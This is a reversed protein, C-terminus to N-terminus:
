AYAKCCRAKEGFLQAAATIGDTGYQEKCVCFASLGYTREIYDLSFSDISWCGAVKPYDGFIRRFTGFAADIMAVREDLSFVRGTGNKSYSAAVAVTVRDFLHCSRRIVDLHGYTVPDFTGPVCVHSVRDLEM